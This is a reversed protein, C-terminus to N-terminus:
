SEPLPCQRDNANWRREFEKYEERWPLFEGEYDSTFRTEGTCLDVTIWYTWDGEAPAIVAGMLRADISSIPSPPLGPVIRTNYPSQDTNHLNQDMEEGPHQLAWAYDLSTDVQLRGGFESGEALRNEMARVAKAWDEDNNVERIAISGLTLVRLRDEPAIGLGDLEAITRDYMQKFLDVAEGDPPVSYTSPYFWGEMPDIAEPNTNPPGELGLAAYDHAADYAEETSIGFADAVRQYIQDSRNGEPITVRVDARNNSDLLASVADKAAMQQMLRYTGPQISTAASNASYAQGFAETTAVVGHDKLLLGIESGTAGEPIVVLVETTGPGPFDSISAEPDGSSFLPRVVLFAVVALGAFMAIMAVFSFMSGRRRSGRPRRPGGGSGGSESGQTRRSARAEDAAGDHGGELQDFLDTM